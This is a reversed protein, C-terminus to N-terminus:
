RDARKNNKKIIVTFGTQSEVTIDDRARLTELFKEIIMRQKDDLHTNPYLRLEGIENLVRLGELVFEEMEAITALNYPPGFNSVVLDFSGDRFPLGKSSGGVLPHTQSAGKDIVAGQAKTMDEERAVSRREEIPLAYLPDLSVIKADIGERKIDEGFQALGAGIDLIRKGSLEQRTLRLNHLYETLGRAMPQQKEFICHSKDRM